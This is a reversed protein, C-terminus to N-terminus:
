QVLLAVLVASSSIKFTVSLVSFLLETQPTAAGPGPENALWYELKVVETAAGM